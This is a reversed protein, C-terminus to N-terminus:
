KLCHTIMGNYETGYKMLYSPRFMPQSSSHPFSDDLSYELETMKFGGNENARESYMVTRQLTM